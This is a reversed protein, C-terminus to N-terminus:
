YKVNFCELRKDANMFEYILPIFSIRINPGSIRSFFDILNAAKM